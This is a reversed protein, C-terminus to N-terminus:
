ETALYGVHSCVASIKDQHRQVAQFDREEPTRAGYYSWGWHVLLSEEQQCCGTHLYHLCGCGEDRTQDTWQDEPLFLWPRLGKMLRAACWWALYYKQGCGTETDRYSEIATIRQLRPPAAESWRFSETQHVRGYKLKTCGADRAQSLRQGSIIWHENGNAVQKDTNLMDCIRM